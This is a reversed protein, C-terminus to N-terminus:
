SGELIKGLLTQQQLDDNSCYSHQGEGNCHQQWKKNAELVNAPNKRLGKFGSNFGM